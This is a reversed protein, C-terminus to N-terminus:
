TGAGNLESNSTFVLQKGPPPAPTSLPSPAGFSSSAVLPCSNAFHGKAGCKLCEGKTHRLMRELVKRYTTPADLDEFCFSGGRVSDIGHTAMCKITLLDERLGAFGDDVVETTWPAKDPLPAHKSTWESGATSAPSHHANHRARPNRTQGIYWRGNALQEAYLTRKQQAASASVATLPAWPPPPLSLLAGGGGGGGGGEKPPTTPPPEPTAPTTAPAAPRSTSDGESASSGGGGGGQQETSPSPSACAKTPAIPPQSGGAM